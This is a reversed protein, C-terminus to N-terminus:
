LLHFKVQCFFDQAVAAKYNRYDVDYTVHCCTHSLLREPSPGMSDVSEPTRRLELSSKLM